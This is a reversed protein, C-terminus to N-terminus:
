VLSISTIQRFSNIEDILHMAVCWICTFFMCIINPCVNTSELRSLAFFFFFIATSVFCHLNSHIHNRVTVLTSLLLLLVLKPKYHKPVRSLRCWHFSYQVIDVDVTNEVLRFAMWFLLKSARNEDDLVGFNSQNHFHWTFGSIFMERM